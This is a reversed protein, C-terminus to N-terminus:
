KEGSAKGAMNKFLYKSDLLDYKAGTEEQIDQSVSLYKVTGDGDIKVEASYVVSGKPADASLKTSSAFLKEEVDPTFTVTIYVPGKADNKEPAEQRLEVSQIYEGKLGETLLVGKMEDITKLIADKGSLEPASAEGKVPVLDCKIGAHHVLNSIEVNESVTYNATAEGSIDYDLKEKTMAQMSGHPCYTTAIEQLELRGTERAFSTDVANKFITLATEDVKNPNSGIDTKEFLASADGSFYGPDKGGGNNSDGGGCAAFSLIMAGALLAALTKKLM